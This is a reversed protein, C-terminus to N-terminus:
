EAIRKVTHIRVAGKHTPIAFHTWADNSGISIRAQKGVHDPIAALTGHLTIIYSRTATSVQLKHIEADPDYGLDRNITVLLHDHDHEAHLAPVLLSVLAVAVIRLFSGLSIKVSRIRTNMATWQFPLLM